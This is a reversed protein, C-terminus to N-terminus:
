LVSVDTVTQLCCVTLGIISLIQLIVQGHGATLYQSLKSLDNEDSCSSIATLDDEFETVLMSSVHCLCSDERACV